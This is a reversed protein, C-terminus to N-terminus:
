LLQVAGNKTSASPGPPPLDNDDAGVQGWLVREAKLVKLTQVVKGNAILTQWQKTPVKTIFAAGATTVPGEGKSLLLFFESSRGLTPHSGIPMTSVNSAM